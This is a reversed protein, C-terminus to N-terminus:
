YGSSDEGLGNDPAVVRSRQPAKAARARGASALQQFRAKGYTKRGIYAALAGPNKAGRSALTQKMAAFRAGSGLPPKKAM